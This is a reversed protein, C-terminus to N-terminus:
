AKVKVYFDGQRNDGITDTFKIAGSFFQGDTGGSLKLQVTQALYGQSELTLGAPTIDVSNISAVNVGSKLIDDLKVDITVAEYPRKEFTDDPPM